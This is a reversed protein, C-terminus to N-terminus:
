LARPQMRARHANRGTSCPQARRHAEIETTEAQKGAHEETKRYTRTPAVRGRKGGSGSIIRSQGLRPSAVHGVLLRVFARLVYSALFGARAIGDIVAHLEPLALGVRQARGERPGADDLGILQAARRLIEDVIRLELVELLRRRRQAREHDLLPVHSILFE